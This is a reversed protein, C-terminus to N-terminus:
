PLIKKVKLYQYERKYVMIDMNLESKLNNFIYM